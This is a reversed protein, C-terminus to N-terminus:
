SRAPVVGLFKAVYGVTQVTVIEGNDHLGFTGDARVDFTKGNMAITAYDQNFSVSDPENTGDIHSLEFLARETANFVVPTQFSEQDKELAEEVKRMGLKIWSGRSGAM